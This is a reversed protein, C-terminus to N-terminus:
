GKDDTRGDMWGDMWGAVDMSGMGMDMCRPCFQDSCFQDSCFLCVFLRKVFTDWGGLHGYEDVSLSLLFLLFFLFIFFYFLLPFASDVIWVGSKREGQGLRERRGIRNRGM